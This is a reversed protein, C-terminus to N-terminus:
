RERRLASAASVASIASFASAITALESAAGSRRRPRSMAGARRTKGVRAQLALLCRRWGRRTRGTPRIRLLARARLGTTSDVDGGL